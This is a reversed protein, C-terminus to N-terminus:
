LIGGGMSELFGIFLILVGRMISVPVGGERGGERGKRKALLWKWSLVKIYDVL